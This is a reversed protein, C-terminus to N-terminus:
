APAEQPSLTEPGLRGGTQPDLRDREGTWAGTQRDYRLVIVDGNRIRWEAHQDSEFDPLHGTEAAVAM